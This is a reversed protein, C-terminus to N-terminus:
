ILSIKNNIQKHTRARKNRAHEDNKEKAFATVKTALLCRETCLALAITHNAFEHTTQSTHTHTNVRTKAM